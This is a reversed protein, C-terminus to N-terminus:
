AALTRAHAGDHHLVVLQDDLPELAERRDGRVVDDNVRPSGGGELLARRLDAVGLREHQDAFPRRDVARQEVQNGAKPKIQWVPRPVGWM